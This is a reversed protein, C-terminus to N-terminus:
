SGKRSLLRVLADIVRAVGVRVDFAEGENGDQRRSHSFAGKALFGFVAIFSAFVGAIFVGVAWSGMGEKIFVFVWLNNSFVSRGLRWLLYAPIWGCSLIAALAVRRFFYAQRASRMDADHREQTQRRRWENELSDADSLPADKEPLEEGEM